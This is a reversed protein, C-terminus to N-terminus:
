GRTFEQPIEMNAYEADSNEEKEEQAVPEIEPESGEYYVDPDNDVIVEGEAADPQEEQQPVSVNTEPEETGGQQSWPM